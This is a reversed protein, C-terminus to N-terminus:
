EITILDGFRYDWEEPDFPVFGCNHFFTIEGFYIKGNVNYLDIRVHKLDKSLIKAVKIMEDYNQPKKIKLQSNEHGNKIPLYNFDIDFFDFKLDEKRNHRDTAVFLYKPEGNFCFFKYDPIDEEQSEILEEAFIKRDIHKYPWERGTKRYYDTKISNSIKNSTESWNDIFSQKNKCISLGGSDHNTKLVFHEPLSNLDIQEIKDWIQITPIVYQSGIKEAVWEKVKIKDVLTTYIPNRDYLKLWQLKENYTKPHKLDLKKGIRAYLMLNLFTKDSFINGFTLLFKNLIRRFLLNYNSKM